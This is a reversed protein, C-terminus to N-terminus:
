KLPNIKDVAAIVEGDTLKLSVKDNQSLQKVSKVTKGDKLAVSYGRELISLPSLAGLKASLESLKNGNREKKLQMARVIDDHKRDLLERKENIGDIITKPSTMKEYYLMSKRESEIKRRLLYETKKNVNCIRNMLETTEPVALEAAASPTPARCDAVFDCITFDTEHGVASIVPIRSAAIARALKEDNFGWLDEISGGGRGIIIVDVNNSANFYEVARVLQPPADSGQVLVPYLVAEAYPFRRGLINIIDRVAAGTPSTIIGVRKPIKPLPKKREQSFLGEAGLKKKLQEFAFYLSGVGDPEMEECYIQYNGDSAYVSIRGKVLVKMGSELMFQLKSAYGRFMVAKILSKDDKLSFYFHGSSHKKFNSIEGEVWVQSLHPDSDILGKIYQNLASVSIVKRDM